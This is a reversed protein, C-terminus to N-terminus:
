LICKSWDMRLRKSLLETQGHQNIVYRTIGDCQVYTIMQGVIGILKQAIGEACVTAIRMRVCKNIQKSCSAQDIM